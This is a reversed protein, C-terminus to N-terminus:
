VKGARMVTGPVCQESVEVWRVEKAGLSWVTEDQHLHQFFIHSRDTEIQM